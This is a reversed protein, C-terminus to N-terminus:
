IKYRKLLQRLTQRCILSYAKIKFRSLVSQLFPLFEHLFDWNYFLKMNWSYFNKCCFILIPLLIPHDSRECYVDQPTLRIM